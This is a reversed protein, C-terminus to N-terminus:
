SPAALDHFRKKTLRDFETRRLREVIRRAAGPQGYVPEAAAIVAAMEPALARGLAASIDGRSEGCDVVSAGRLRGRQRDGINVTPIRMAPAEIIGSSSNGVVAKALGMLSLYRRQGLSPAAVARGPNREVYEEIRRAVAANGTDANVGTFVIGYEPHEDFAALMADVPALADGRALTVPHYTVLFFGGGLDMGVDESLRELPLPDLNEIADLGLAGVVHVQDPDEGMQVVRRAYEPAATFHIHSMKSIAPRISDDIAAETVEGGHIHAVPVRAILAAEVAALIEYRDGLVVMLDPRLEALAGGIGALALGMSKAVGPATDDDLALDVRASIEFGDAEIEQVGLGLRPSLHAGTVLLQLRVGPDADLAKLLGSLLGYEARSGTVM